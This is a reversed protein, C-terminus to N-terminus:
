IYIYDKIPKTPCMIVLDHPFCDGAGSVSAEGLGALQQAM